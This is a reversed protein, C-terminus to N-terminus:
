NFRELKPILDLIKKPNQTFSLDDMLNILLGTQDLLKKIDLDCFFPIYKELKKIGKSYQSKSGKFNGSLLHFSGVSIQVLGQFFAKEDNACNLWCDEFFDHASFFDADNFLRIGESIDKLAPSIIIFPPYFMLGFLLKLFFNGAEAPAAAAM